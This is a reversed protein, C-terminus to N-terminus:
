PVRDLRAKAIIRQKHRNSQEHIVTLVGPGRADILESDTVNSSDECDIMNWRVIMDEKAIGDRAPLIHIVYADKIIVPDLDLNDSARTVLCIAKFKREIIQRQYVGGPRLWSVYEEYSKRFRGRKMM